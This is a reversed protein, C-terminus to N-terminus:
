GPKWVSLTSGPSAWSSGFTIGPTRSTDLCLLSHSLASQSKGVADVSEFCTVWSERLRWIQTVWDELKDSCAFFAVFCLRKNAIALGDSLELSSSAWSQLAPSNPKVYFSYYILCIGGLCNFRMSPQLEQLAVTTLASPLLTKQPPLSSELAGRGGEVEGQQVTAARWGDPFVRSNPPLELAATHLSEEGLGPLQAM